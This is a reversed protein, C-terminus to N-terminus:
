ALASSTGDPPQAAISRAWKALQRSKRMMPLLGSGSESPLNGIGGRPDRITLDPPWLDPRSGRRGEQVSLSSCHERFELFSGHSVPGDIATEHRLRRCPHLPRRPLDNTRQIRTQRLIGLKSGAQPD